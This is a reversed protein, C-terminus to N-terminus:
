IRGHMMFALIKYLLINTVGKYTKIDSLNLLLRHPASTKVNEYMSLTDM